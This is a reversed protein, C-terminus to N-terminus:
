RLMERIQQFATPPEHPLADDFPPMGNKERLRVISADIMSLVEHRVDAPAERMWASANVLRVLAASSSLSMTDLFLKIGQVDKGYPGDLLAQAKEKHWNKWQRHLKQQDRLKKEEPTLIMPAKAQRAETARHRAKVPAAIQTEAVNLFANM